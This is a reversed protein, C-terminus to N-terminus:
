LPLEPPVDYYMRANLIWSRLRDYDAYGKYKHCRGNVFKRITPYRDVGSTKNIDENNELMIVNTLSPNSLIERKINNWVPKMQACYSCWDTYHLIVVIKDLGHYKTWYSTVPKHHVGAESIYNESLLYILVIIGIISLPLIYNM